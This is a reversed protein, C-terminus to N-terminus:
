NTIENDIFLKHEKKFLKTCIVFISYTIFYAAFVDISYHLHALLVVAAFFVSSALFFTRLTRSHWFILAMLFPIGTHASFFLDGGFSFNRIFSLPDIQIHSPFNAIHTLSIFISRIITFLAISKILFPLIGPRFLALFGIFCVFAVFGYIFLFSLDIVPINSLIIDTVSNSQSYSAYVSAYYNIILSVLLFAIAVFLSIRFEHNSFFYKYKKFLKKIIETKSIVTKTIDYFNIWFFLCLM